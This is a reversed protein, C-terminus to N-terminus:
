WILISTAGLGFGASLWPLGDFGQFTNLIAPQTDATQRETVGWTGSLQQLESVVTNDLAFLFASTTLTIVLLLWWPPTLLLAVESEM